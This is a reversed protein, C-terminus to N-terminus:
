QKQLMILQELRNILTKAKHKHRVNKVQPSLHKELM